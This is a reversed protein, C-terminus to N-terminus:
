RSLPDLKRRRERGIELPRQRPSTGALALIRSSLEVDWSGTPRASPPAPRYPDTGDTKVPQLSFVVLLSYM